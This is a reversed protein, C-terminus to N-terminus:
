DMIIVINEFSYYFSVYKKENLINLFTFIWNERSFLYFCMLFFHYMQIKCVM